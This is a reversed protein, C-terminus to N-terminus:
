SGAALDVEVVEVSWDIRSQTDMKFAGPGTIVSSGWTMVVDVFLISRSIVLSSEEASFVM